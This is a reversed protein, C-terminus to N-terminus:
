AKGGKRNWREVVALMAENIEQEEDGLIWLEPIMELSGRLGYNGGDPRGESKLSDDITVGLTADAFAEAGGIIGAADCIERLLEVKQAPLYIPLLGDTEEKSWTKLDLPLTIKGQRALTSEVADLAASLLLEHLEGAPINIRPALQDIRRRNAAKYTEAKRAPATAVKAAPKKTATPTPATNM